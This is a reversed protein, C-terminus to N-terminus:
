DYNVLYAGSQSNAALYINGIKINKGYEDGLYPIDVSYEVVTACNEGDYCLELYTSGKGDCSNPSSVAFLNNIASVYSGYNEDLTECEGFFISHVITQYWICVWVGSLNYTCTYAYAGGVYFNPAYDTESGYNIYEMVAGPVGVILNIAEGYVASASSYAFMEGAMSGSYPFNQPNNLINNPICRPNVFYSCDYVLALGRNNNSLPFGVVLMGTTVSITLLNGIPGYFCTGEMMMNCDTIFSNLTDTLLCAVGNVLETCNFRLIVEPNTYGVYLINPMYVDWAMSTPQSNEMASYKNILICTVSCNYFYINSIADSVAVYFNNYALIDGFGHVGKPPNIEYLLPCPTLIDSSSCDILLISSTVNQVALNSLYMDKMFVVEGPRGTVAVPFQAYIISIFSLLCTLLLISINKVAM